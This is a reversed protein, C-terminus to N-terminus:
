QRETAYAGNSDAIAASVIRQSSLSQSVHSILNHQRHTIDDAQQIGDSGQKGDIIGSDDIDLEIGTLFAKRLGDHHENSSDQKEDTSRNDEWCEEAVIGTRGAIRRESLPTEFRLFNKEM